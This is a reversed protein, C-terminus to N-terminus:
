PIEREDAEAYGDLGLGALVNERLSLDGIIRIPPTPHLRLLTPTALIQAKEAREPQVIVDIVAM